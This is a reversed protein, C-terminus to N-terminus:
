VSSLLTANHHYYTLRDRIYEDDWQEFRRNRCFNGTHSTVIEGSSIETAKRVSYAAPRCVVSPCRGNADCACCSNAGGGFLQTGFVANQRAFVGKVGTPELSAAASQSTVSASHISYYVAGSGNLFVTASPAIATIHSHHAYERSVHYFGNPDIHHPIEVGFTPYVNYSITQTGFDVYACVESLLCTLSTVSWILSSSRM